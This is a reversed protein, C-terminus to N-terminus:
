RNKAGALQQYVPLITAVTHQWSREQEVFRRANSKLRPWDSRQQLLQQLVEALKAANDAAFLIGTENHKILERHGGIDSAVVLGQQAMAELPKLPTVLETLRIAERPYVFIDVLSYYRSVSNHPVRGTFIIADSINLAAAQAKLADEQLGGGVLLLRLQPQTPLLLALAELLIHLGEYRYFSGLFGLVTKDQLALSTNLESDKHNQPSFAALDVANAVISIRERNIGWGAIQDALGQCITVVHDASKLARKELWQGLRYRLDGEKCTGHSVAADEWSARMEYVLPISFRKAVRAAAIANLSPSHAHIIDPRQQQVLQTLRRQLQTIVDWQNLLPLRALWGPQTRYFLQGESYEETPGAPYHKSGTLQRTNINLCQQERLIALSRFSYGSHLPASHDFVHLVDLKGQSM